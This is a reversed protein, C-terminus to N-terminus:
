SVASSGYQNVVFAIVRPEFAGGVVSGIFGLVEWSSVMRNTKEVWLFSLFHLRETMDLEKRGWPSYGVLSRWGHSKGPLLVPTPQWKRRWWCLSLFPFFHLSLLSYSVQFCEQGKNVWPMSTLYQLSIAWAQSLDQIIIWMPWLSSLLLGWPAFSNCITIQYKHHEIAM